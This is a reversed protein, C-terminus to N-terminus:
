ALGKEKLLRDYLGSIDSVLRTFAYRNRISEACDAFQLTEPEKRMIRQVAETFAPVDDVATLYGNRGHEVIDAIGGVNTSVVPKGAALAEIITVPTGENLSTLTVIDLGHMVLDMDQQWSTFILDTGTGPEEPLCFSLGLNKAEEQLPGMQDGDGVIVGRMNTAGAAKLAAIVRLFMQMNKIKALRGIIGIATEGEGIQWQRRFQLRKEATDEAFKRLDFGLPIVEMKEPPCIHFRETLEKKQIDSIAIIRACRKALFREIRLFVGTVLPHFYSHFTHGHFTHLIVPVGAMIAALRGLTGSKAAHTHVIQPKVKRLLRYIELLAAFDQFPNISRKMSQIYHPQIGFENMIHSGELEGPSPMGTVLITQFRPALFRTLYAAHHTPGSISLRHMIRVVQVPKPTSM